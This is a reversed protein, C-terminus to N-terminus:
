HDSEMRVKGMQCANELVTLTDNVHEWSQFTCLWQIFIIWDNVGCPNFRLGYVMVRGQVTM